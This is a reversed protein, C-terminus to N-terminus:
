PRAFGGGRRCIQSIGIHPLTPRAARQRKKKLTLEVVPEIAGKAGAPDGERLLTLGHYIRADILQAEVEPAPPLHELAAIRKQGYSIMSTISAQRRAQEYTLRSYDASKQFDEGLMFHEALVSYHSDLNDHYLEEVAKGIKKHLAKKKNTLISDYIVERTIAHKFIYTSEPFVGREYILEAYMLASLYSLLTPEPLETVAKILKYSFERDIASGTQLVEKPADPLSDVRAMVVEQITSPIAVGETDQVLHYEENRIIIELDKLARVFEEVFFPVGETKELILDALDIALNDSGLMHSVMALSERNSLRNLTVQSHFSRSGWTHVFEPRYTFIMMVRAGPISELLYKASEESSKDTWHLDELALVLPRRMSGRLVIRRLAQLIRDKKAEPSMSISDIGSNRVSLLELLYPLTSPEDVGLASLGSKVKESIESDSDSDEVAFNAKLFM